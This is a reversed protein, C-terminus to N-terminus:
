LYGNKYRNIVSAFINEELDANGDLVVVEIDVGANICENLPEELEAYFDDNLSGTVLRVDEHKAAAVELLNRFLYIAHSWAANTILESSNSKRCRDVKLEFESKDKSM